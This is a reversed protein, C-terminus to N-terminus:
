ARQGPINEIIMRAIRETCRGDAASLYREKMRRQPAPDFERGDIRAALPELERSTVEPFDALLDVNLGNIRSYEDIDYVWFLVPVDLVCAELAVASYDTIVADCLPLLDSVDVGGANVVNSGTVSARELPHPKVILTYREGSFRGAVDQYRGVGGSRFTPAYMVVTRTRDGLVPHDSCLRVVAPSELATARSSALLYDIRPLGLAVIIGPDVGFAEAFVPVTAPGGCLVRDYNRHMRMVSAIEAAHGGPRGVTQYGFKKIAGLAHWMQVVFLDARHDLLSVPIVYGDVVCVRATALHYMQGLMAFVAAIRSGIGVGVMRCRMVIELGPDAERLAEALMEFDRSPADSQRSLFVVEHRVPLVAKFVGYLCRASLTAVAIFFRMSAVGRPSYTAVASDADSTQM